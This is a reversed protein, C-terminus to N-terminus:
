FAVPGQTALENLHECGTKVKDSTWILNQSYESLREKYDSSVFIVGNFVMLLTVLGLTMAFRLSSFYDLIERKIIHWIM